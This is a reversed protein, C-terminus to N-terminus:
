LENEMALLENFVNATETSATDLAYAGTSRTEADNTYTVIGNDDFSYAAVDDFSIM